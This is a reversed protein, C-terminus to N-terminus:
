FAYLYKDSLSIKANPVYGHDRKYQYALNNIAQKDSTAMTAGIWETSICRDFYYVPGCYLYQQSKEESPNIRCCLNNLDCGINWKSGDSWHSCDICEPILYGAYDKNMTKDGRQFRFFSLVKYYPVLRKLVKIKRM